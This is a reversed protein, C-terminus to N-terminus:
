LFDQLWLQNTHVARSYRLGEGVLEADFVGNMVEKWTPFVIKLPALPSALRSLFFSRLWVDPSEGFQGLNSAQAIVPWFPEENPPLRSHKKLVNQVQQIHSGPNEPRYRGPISTILFATVDSFDASTVDNSWPELIPLDYHNLFALLDSKFKTASEGGSQDDDNLRRCRPSM